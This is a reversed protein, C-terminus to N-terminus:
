PRSRGAQDHAQIGGGYSASWLLGDKTQILLRVGGPLTNAVNGDSNLHTILDEKRNLRVMGKSHGLWVAGDRTQLVSWLQTTWNQANILVREVSGNSLNIKDLGTKTVLWAYSEEAESASFVIANSLSSIDKSHHKFVSFNRWGAALRLLGRDETPFWFGGEHDEFVGYIRAPMQNDPVYSLLQGNQWQFVLTRNSFWIAGHKDQWLGSIINGPLLTNGIQYGDASLHLLGNRTGVWVSGDVDGVLQMIFSSVPDVTKIRSFSKGNWVCLGNTTGIWLRDQTDVALSVITESPLSNDDNKDPMFRKIAGNADMRHLGGGYTGLWLSGDSTSTMAWIDDSGLKPHTSKRYHTFETREPNLRSVGQGEVAIWLQDRKDVHLAQVVNGPLSNGDGPAYRYTKYGVGDYRALGDKSAIWLYGKKDQTIAYLTSSPLGDAVTVLRFQPTEPLGACISSCCLLLGLLLFLRM